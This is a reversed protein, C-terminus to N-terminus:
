SASACGKKMVSKFRSFSKGFVSIKSTSKRQVLADGGGVISPEHEFDDITAQESNDDFGDVAGTPAVCFLSDFQTKPAQKENLKRRLISRIKSRVCSTQEDRKESADSMPVVRTRTQLHEKLKKTSTPFKWRRDKATADRSESFDEKSGEESSSDARTSCLVSRDDSTATSASSVERVVSFDCLTVVPSSWPSCSGNEAVEVALRAARRQAEHMIVHHPRKKANRANMLFAAALANDEQTLEYTEIEHVDVEVIEDAGCAM